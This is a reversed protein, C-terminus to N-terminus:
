LKPMFELRSLPLLRIRAVILIRHTKLKLTNQTAQPPPPPSPEGTDAAGGASGGGGGGGGAPGSVTVTSAPMFCSM